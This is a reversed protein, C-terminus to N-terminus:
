ELIDRRPRGLTLFFFALVAFVVLTPLQLLTMMGPDWLLPNATKELFSQLAGLSGAHIQTWTQALPTWILTSAAITKTGDIVLAVVAVALLWFGLFRLFGAIM